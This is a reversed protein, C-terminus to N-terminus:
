YESLRGYKIAMHQLQSLFVAGDPSQTRDEKHDAVTTVLDTIPAIHYLHEGSVLAHTQISNYPLHEWLLNCLAQNRDEVLTATVSKRLEVWEIEIQRKMKIRRIEPPKQIQAGETGGGDLM